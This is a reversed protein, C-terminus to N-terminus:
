HSTQVGLLYSFKRISFKERLSVYNMANQTKTWLHGRGEEVPLAVAGIEPDEETSMFILKNCRKGWTNKVTLAKTKHNEPITFVWCLIKVEDYLWDALTSNYLDNDKSHFEFKPVRDIQKNYVTFIILIGVTFGCLFSFVDFFRCRNMLIPAKFTVASM